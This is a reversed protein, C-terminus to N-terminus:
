KSSWIYVCLQRDLSNRGDGTEEGEDVDWGDVELVLLFTM